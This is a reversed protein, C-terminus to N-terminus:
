MVKSALDRDDSAPNNMYNRSILILVLLQYYSCKTTDRRLNFALSAYLSDSPVDSDTGQVEERSEFNCQGDKQM